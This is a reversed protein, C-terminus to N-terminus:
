TIHVNTSEKTPTSPPTAEDSAPVLNNERERQQQKRKHLNARLAQSMRQWKEQKNRTLRTELFDEM